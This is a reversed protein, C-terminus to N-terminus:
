LRRIRLQMKPTRYENHNRSNVTNSTNKSYFGNKVLRKMKRQKLDTSVPIVTFPKVVINRTNCVDELEALLLNVHRTLEQKTIIVPYVMGRKTEDKEEEEDSQEQDDKDIEMQDSQEQIIEMQNYLTRYMSLDDDDSVDDDILNSINGDEDTDSEEDGECSAEDDIFENRRRGELITSPGDTAKRKGAKREKEDIAYVNVSINNKREFKDNSRLTVPFTLMSLDPAGEQVECYTYMSVGNSHQPDSPEYM